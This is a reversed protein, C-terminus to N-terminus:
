NKIETPWAALLARVADGSSEADAASEADARLAEALLQGLAAARQSAAAATDTAAGSGGIAYSAIANRLEGREALLNRQAVLLRAHEPQLQAYRDEATDARAQLAAERNRYDASASAARATYDARLIETEAHGRIYGQDERASGYRHVQLAVAGAAIAFVLAGGALRYPLPVLSLLSM